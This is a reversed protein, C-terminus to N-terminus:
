YHQNLKKKLLYLQNRSGNIIYLVNIHEFLLTFSYLFVNEYEVMIKWYGLILTQTHGKVNELDM